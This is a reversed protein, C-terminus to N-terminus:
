QNVRKFMKDIEYKTLRVTVPRGHPCATVEPDSLVRRCLDELEYESTHSGGKIAAKCSVTHILDDLRDPTVDRHNELKFAMESIVASLDGADLYAPQQRIIFSNEGFPEIEFGIKRIEELGEQLVATEERSLNVIQPTLLVQTPIDTTQRLQNFIIREHAAHKDILLLGQADEALIYTHFCEGIVRVKPIVSEGELPASPREATQSALVPQQKESPLPPMEEREVFPQYTKKKEPQWPVQGIEIEEKSVAPQGDQRFSSASRVPPVFDPVFVSRAFSKKEPAALKEVTPIEPKETKLAAAPAVTPMTMEQQFDTVHDERKPYLVSSNEEKARLEPINDDTKLANQCCLYVAQFVKKEQFFKVEVKAPHVNVDVWSLPLEIELACLPYKGTIIRNRYSEELAAQLIGSKVPRGNVFFIQLSRNARACHPKSVYGSVTIGDLEVKQAEVMERALEKGFVQYVASFLKGDGPTSFVKKGDRICSFRVDSHSMAAKHVVGLIYGAETFDKRLFKMRAPTNYFLDRVIFTTGDPCGTEETKSIVGGELQVYTGSLCDREKTYLEIRSVASIAALAEGRFGLTGIAQLDSEDRIKSTAHRKFAIVADEEAMGKGDDTMRIYTIGGNQIELTINKAGADLANELLEKVVSAPREVVEGAAILDAVHPSLQAIM